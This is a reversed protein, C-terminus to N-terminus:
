DKILIFVTLAILKTKNVTYVQVVKTHFDDSLVMPMFGAGHNDGITVGELMKLSLSVKILAFM